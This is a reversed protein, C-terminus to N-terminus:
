VSVLGLAFYLISISNYGKSHPSSYAVSVFEISRRVYLLSISLRIINQYVTYNRSNKM